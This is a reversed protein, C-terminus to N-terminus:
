LIISSFYITQFFSFLELVMLLVWILMVVFISCLCKFKCILTRTQAVACKGRGQGLLWTLQYFKLILIPDPSPYTHMKESVSMSRFNRVQWMRVSHIQLSLVIGLSCIWMAIISKFLFCSAYVLLCHGVMFLVPKLGTIYLLFSLAFALCYLPKLQFSLSLCM